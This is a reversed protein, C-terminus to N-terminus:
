NTPRWMGGLETRQYDDYRGNKFVTVRGNEESLTVTALVEKRVSLEVASLHKTGMWDAYEITAQTDGEENVDQSKIRVMQEQITGDASIIIAGDHKFGVEEAAEAFGDFNETVLRCSEVPWKNEGLPDAYEGSHVGTVVVFYLSPGSVYEENWREFDLSISETAFMIIEVLKPVTIYEVRLPDSYNTPM